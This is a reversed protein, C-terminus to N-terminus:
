VKVLLDDSGLRIDSPAQFDVVKDNGWREKFKNLANELTDLRDLKRDFGYLLMEILYGIRKGAEGDRYPDIEKLIFSYDAFEKSNHQNRKFREIENLLSELNNFVTTIFGQGYFPHEKFDQLDCTVSRLGSLASELAPTSYVGFGIVLDSAAAAENPLVAGDLFLARGTQLAKKALAELKNFEPIRNWFDRIKKPKTILGFSPDEIVKNLLASYIVATDEVAKPWQSSYNQDFFTVIFKAGKEILQKRYAQSIKKCNQFLYDYPYGSYVLYKLEYFRKDFFGANYFYPGWTFYIDYPKGITVETIDYNSWHHSLDVGQALEIAINSATLDAGSEYLAYHVKVHYLSFFSGYFTVRNMLGAIRTLQWFMVRSSSLACKLFMALVGFLDIISRQIFCARPFRHFEPAGFPCISRPIKYPLLDVWNMGYSSILDLTKRSPPFCGYKFYVLIREPKINGSRFWFYDAKKELDAGQAFMVAVKPLDPLMKGLRRMAFVKELSNIIVEAMIKFFVFGQKLAGAIDPYSFVKAALEAKDRCLFELWLNDRVLIIENDQNISHVRDWEMFCAITLFDSIERAIEQKFFLSVKAKNFKNKLLDFSARNELAKTIRISLNSIERFSKQYIEREEASSMGSFSSQLARFKIDQDLKLFNIIKKSLGSISLYRVETFNYKFCLILLKVLSFLNLNDVWCCYM